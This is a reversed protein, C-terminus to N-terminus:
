EKVGAYDAFEVYRKGRIAENGLAVAVASNWGVHEDAFPRTGNRMSEIFSAVALFNPNGAEDEPIAIPLGPGRYPMDGSTALTASTHVGREILEEPV